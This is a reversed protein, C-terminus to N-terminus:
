SYSNPTLFLGLKCVSSFIAWPNPMSIESSSADTKGLFFCGFDEAFFDFLRRALHNDFHGSVAASWVTSNPVLHAPIRVHRKADGISRAKSLPQGVGERLNAPYSIVFGREWVNDCVFRGAIQRRWVRGVGCRGAHISQRCWRQDRWHRRTSM